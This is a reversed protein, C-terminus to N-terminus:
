MGILCELWIVCQCASTDYELLRAWVLGASQLVVHMPCNKVMADTLFVRLDRRLPAVWHRSEKTPQPRDAQPVTHGPDQSDRTQRDMPDGSLCPQEKTRGATRASHRDSGGGSAWGWRSEREANTPPALQRQPSFRLTWQRGSGIRLAAVGRLWHAIQM